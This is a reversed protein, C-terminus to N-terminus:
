CPRLLCAKRKRQFMWLIGQWDRRLVSSPAKYGLCRIKPTVLFCHNNKGGEAQEQKRHSSDPLPLPSPYIRIASVRSFLCPQARQTPKALGSFSKSLFSLPTQQLLTFRYVQLQISLRIHVHLCNIRTFILCVYNLGLINGVTKRKWHSSLKLHHPSPISTDRCNYSRSLNTTPSPPPVRDMVCQMYIQVPDKKQGSTLIEFPLRRQCQTFSISHHSMCNYEQGASLTRTWQPVGLLAPFPIEGGADKVFASPWEPVM